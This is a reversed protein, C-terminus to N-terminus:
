CVVQLNIISGITQSGSRIGLRPASSLIVDQFEKSLVRLEVQEQSGMMWPSPSHRIIEAIWAQEPKTEAFVEVRLKQVTIGDIPFHNLDELLMATGFIKMKRKM